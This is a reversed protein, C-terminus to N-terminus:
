GILPTSVKKAISEIEPISSSSVFQRLDVGSIGNVLGFNLGGLALSGLDFGNLAGTGAIALLTQLQQFQLLSNLDFSNVNFVDQFLLLNLNNNLGLQQFLQLDLSNINLLYNFDNQKFVLNNLQGFDFSSRAELAATEAAPAPAATAVAGLAAAILTSFKM